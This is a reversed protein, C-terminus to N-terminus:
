AYWGKLRVISEELSYVELEKDMRRLFRSGM